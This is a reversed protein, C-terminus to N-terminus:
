QKTVISGFVQFEYFSAWFGAHLGTIVIRVYRGEASFDNSNAQTPISNTTKDFVVTWDTRNSSVEIVYQYATNREWIIQANTITATNGLDVEWWQPLDGNSACWRTTLNGDNGNQVLNGRKSEESSAIAPKGLAINGGTVIAASSVPAPNTPTSSTNNVAITGTPVSKSNKGRFVFAAAVAACLLVVVVFVTVPFDKEPATAAGTDASATPIPREGVKTGKIIFKSDDTAPAQPVAIKQFCTPCEMVSGSQSSDCKIHQGCVPCAYKFEAM